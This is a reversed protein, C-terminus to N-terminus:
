RTAPAATAPAKPSQPGFDAGLYAAMQQVEEPEWLAGRGIMRYLTAEWARTNQRQDRWMSDTHCQFCKATLIEHGALPKGSNDPSSATQAHVPLGALPVTLLMMCQAARALSLQWRAVM